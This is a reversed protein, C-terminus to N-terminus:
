PHGLSRAFPRIRRSEASRQLHTDNATWTSLDVTAPGTQDLIHVLADILSFQGFTLVFTDSGREIRGIAESANSSKAIRSERNARKRHTKCETMM